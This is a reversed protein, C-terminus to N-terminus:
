YYYITDKKPLEIDIPGSDFVIWRGKIKRLYYRMGQGMGKLPSKIRRSINDQYVYNWEEYLDVIAYYPNLIKTDIFTSDAMDYVIMLGQSRLYDIDRYIEHKLLVSAPFEDLM